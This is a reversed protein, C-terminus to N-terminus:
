HQGTVTPTVRVAVTQGVAFEAGRVVVDTSASADLTVGGEDPQLPELTELQSTLLAPPMFHGARASMRGSILEATGALHVFVMPNTVGARLQDRYIRRLSSCAIVVSVGRENAQAAAHAVRALWPRRDDDTLPIGASMLARADASHLDDADIFEAGLRGALQSGITSKGCGSVGMVVASFVPM